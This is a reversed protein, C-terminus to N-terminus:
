IVQRRYRYLSTQTSYGFHVNQCGVLYPAIEHSGFSAIRPEVPDAGRVYESAIEVGREELSSTLLSNDRWTGETHLGYALRVALEHVDEVIVHAELLDRQATASVKFCPNMILFLKILENFCPIPMWRTHGLLAHRVIDGGVDDAHPIPLIDGIGLGPNFGAYPLLRMQKELHYRNLVLGDRHLGLLANLGDHM